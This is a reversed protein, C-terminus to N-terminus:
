GGVGAAPRAGLTVVVARHAGARVVSLTVREGPNKLGILQTLDASHMLPQGDVATIVDGGAPIGRAGEFEIKSTGTRLGARDGPGGAQVTAVLAGHPSAVLLRAALQPFLDETSVGLYAYEVHGTARLQALSRRATDVPIAFGVGEGGGSSSQIQSNIGIVQGNAAILPGGSNGHNIAADTQIAGGIRFRTLSEISRDTASIVGVSLSQSEGFPSGIAAVPSGVVLRSSSGLRLPTLALGAPAVKLLAVDSDLDDGVVRAPVRSGDTFEVYVRSPRTLKPPDSRVVHANTAIYGSSDLVFGSGLAGQGSGGYSAIVTVVGPALLKYISAADFGGRSGIGEVLQVRTREVVTRGRVVPPQDNGAPVTARSLGCGALALAAAGAATWRALAASM